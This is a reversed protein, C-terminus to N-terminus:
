CICLENELGSCILLMLHLLLSEFFVFAINYTACDTTMKLRYMPSLLNLGYVDQCFKVCPFFVFLHICM